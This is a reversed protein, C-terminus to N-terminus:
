RIKKHISISMRNDKEVTSRSYWEYNKLKDELYQSLEKCWFDLIKKNNYWNPKITTKKNYKLYIDIIYSDKIRNIKLDSDEEINISFDIDDFDDESESFYELIIEKISDPIGIKTDKNIKLKEIIYSNLKKM